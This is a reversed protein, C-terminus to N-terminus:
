NFAIARYDLKSCYFVLYIKHLVTPYSQFNVILLVIATGYSTVRVRNNYRQLELIFWLLNKAVGVIFVVIQGSRHRVIIFFFFFICSCISFSCLSLTTVLIVEWARSDNLHDLPHSAM